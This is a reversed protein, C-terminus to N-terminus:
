LTEADLHKGSRDLLDLLIRRQRTLRVGREKLSDQIGANAMGNMLTASQRRVSDCASEFDYRAATTCTVVQSRCPLPPPVALITGPSIAFLNRNYQSLSVPQSAPTGTS